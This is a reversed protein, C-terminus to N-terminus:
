SQTVPALILRMLFDAPRQVLWNFLDFHVGANATLVPLIVLVLLLVAFGMRGLALYPGALADPLLGALVKSGDLPPLPLMNFVALVLNFEITTLLLRSLWGISGAGAALQLYLLAAAGLAIAVNAAPGAAAVLIMDRKPHRLASFNVPVPKAYGFIFGAHTLLLLAPLLITGVLDIHNLPNLTLRGRDKATTDGCRLAVFGHAAEHLTIALIVPVAILAIQLPDFGGTM